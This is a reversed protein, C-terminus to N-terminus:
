VGVKARKALSIAQRQQLPMPGYKDGIRLRNRCAHGCTKRKSMDAFCGNRSPTPMIISGCVECQKPSKLYAALAQEYNNKTRTELKARREPRQWSRKSSEKIKERFEPLALTIRGKALSKLQAESAKGRRHESWLKRTEGSVIRGRNAEVIKQIHEASKPKGKGAASLKARTEASAKRGRMPAGAILSINYGNKVADFTNIALQEQWLLDEEPCFTLMEFEFADPGYKNWANQLKPNEHKQKSLKRIHENRRRHIQASSGIYSKGNVINVWRYVGRNFFNKMDFNSTM